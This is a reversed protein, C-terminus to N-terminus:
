SAINLFRPADLLPRVNLRRWLGGGADRLREGAWPREADVPAPESKLGEPAKLGLIRTVLLASNIGHKAGVLLLRAEGNRPTPPDGHFAALDVVSYLTGRINTLGAYWPRTRPVEALPPLPVVEGADSLNLLWRESGAEVCLLAAAAEREEAQNLRAALDQQFDRLDTKKSM